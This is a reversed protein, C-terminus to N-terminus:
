KTMAPAAPRLSRNAPTSGSLSQKLGQIWLGAWWRLLLGSVLTAVSARWFLAPWTVGKTLGLVVGILFGTLGGMIMMKKM